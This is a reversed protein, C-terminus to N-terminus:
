DGQLICESQTCDHAYKNTSVLDDIHISFLTPSLVSCKPVGTPCNKISSLTGNLQVQQTRGCMCSAKPGCGSVKILM